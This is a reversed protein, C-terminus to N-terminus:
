YEQPEEFLESRSKLHALPKGASPRRPSCWRVPLYFSVKRPGHRWIAMRYSRAGATQTSSRTSTSSAPPVSKTLPCLFVSALLKTQSM